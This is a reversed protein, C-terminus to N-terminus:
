IFRLLRLSEFVLMESFSKCGTLSRLPLGEESECDDGDGDSECDDEDKDDSGYPSAVFDKSCRKSQSTPAFFDDFGCFAPFSRRNQSPLPEAYDQLDIVLYKALAFHQGRMEADSSSREAVTLAHRLLYDYDREEGPWCFPCRFVGFTVMVEYSKSQLLGYVIEKYEFIESGSTCSAENSCSGVDVSFM